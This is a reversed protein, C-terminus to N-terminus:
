PYADGQYLLTYRDASESLRNAIVPDCVVMQPPCPMTRQRVRNFGAPDGHILSNYNEGCEM